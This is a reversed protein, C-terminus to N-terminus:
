QKGWYEEARRKDLIKSAHNFMATAFKATALGLASLSGDANVYEHFPNHGDSPPLMKLAQWDEPNM